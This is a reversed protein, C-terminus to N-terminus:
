GFQLDVFLADVDLELVDLGRELDLTSDRWPGIDESLPDM